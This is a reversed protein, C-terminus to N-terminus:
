DDNEPGESDEIDVESDVERKWQNLRQKRKYEASYVESLWVILMAIAVALMILSVGQDLPEMDKFQQVINNLPEM